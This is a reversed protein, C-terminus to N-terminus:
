PKITKSGKSYQKGAPTILVAEIREKHKVTITMVMGKHYPKGDALWWVTSGPPLAITAVCAYVDPAIGNHHCSWAISPQTAANGVAHVITSVVTVVIVILAIVAALGAGVALWLVARAGVSHHVADHHERQLPQPQWLTDPSRAPRPAQPPNGSPPVAAPQSGIPQATTPQTDLPRTTSPQAGSASVGAPQSASPQAAAPQPVSPETASPWAGASAASAPAVSDAPVPNALVQNAVPDAQVPYPTGRLRYGRLPNGRPQGGQVGTGQIGGGQTGGRRAGWGSGGRRFPNWRPAIGSAGAAALAARGPVTPPPLMGPQGLARGDPGLYATAWPAGSAFVLLGVSTPQQFARQMALDTDSYPSPVRHTHWWGIEDAAPFSRAATERLLQTGMPSLSFEGTKGADPGAQVFGDVLVYRGEGDRWVQGYLLGGTEHPAQLEAARRLDRAVGPEVLVAGDGGGFM